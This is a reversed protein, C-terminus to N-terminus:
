YRTIQDEVSLLLFNGLFFCFFSNFTKTLILKELEGVSPPSFERMLMM